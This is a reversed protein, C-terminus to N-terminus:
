YICLNGLLAKLQRFFQKNVHAKQARKDKKEAILYQIQEEPRQKGSNSSSTLLFLPIEKLLNTKLVCLKFSILLTIPIDLNCICDSDSFSLPHCMSSISIGQICKHYVYYIKKCSSLVSYNCLFLQNRPIMFDILCPFEVSGNLFATSRTLQM